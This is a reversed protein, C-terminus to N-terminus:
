GEGTELMWRQTWRDETATAETARHGSQLLLMISLTQFMDLGPVMSKDFELLYEAAM